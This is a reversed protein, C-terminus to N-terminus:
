SNQRHEHYSQRIEEISATATGMKGCVIGAAHNAIIAATQIDCDECLSLTLASIVTDGAGSVDYVERAFTPIHHVENQESFVYLGKEGRTIVLNRCKLRAKLLRAQRDFEADNEFVVGLNRQVENYNPKFVDVQQYQFFNKQKPDVSILKKYKRVTRITSNILTETMLGKNYDEIIVADIEPMLKNMKELLQLETKESIDTRDEHDIRVIQQNVAGIRTKRTTSRKNDTILAVPNIGNKQLLERVMNGSDDKGVVGCLFVEAGLARLNLAVNAAGGLRYEEKQVDLVPVPAEPSIREVRGWIYHDLMVDGLVLIRRRSFGKLIRNLNKM